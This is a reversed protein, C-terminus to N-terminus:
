FYDFHIEDKDKENRPVLGESKKLGKPLSEDKFTWKTKYKFAGVGSVQWSSGDFHQPQASSQSM